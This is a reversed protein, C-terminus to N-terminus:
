EKGWSKQLAIEAIRRMRKANDEDQIDELAKALANNSELLRTIASAQEACIRKLNEDSM